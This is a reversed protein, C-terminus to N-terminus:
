PLTVAAGPVATPKGGAAVPTKKQKELADAHQESAMAQITRNWYGAAKEPATACDLKNVKHWATAKATEEAVIKNMLDMRKDVPVANIRAQNEQLVGGLAMMSDGEFRANPCSQLTALAQTLGFRAAPKPAAVAKPAKKPAAAVTQGIAPAAATAIVSHM